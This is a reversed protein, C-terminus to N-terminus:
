RRWLKGAGTINHVSAPRKRRGDGIGQRGSQDGPFVPCVSARGSWMCEAILALFFLFLCSIITRGAIGWRLIWIMATVACFLYWVTIVTGNRTNNDKIRNLNGEM